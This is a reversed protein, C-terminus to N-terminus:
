AREPIMANPFLRAFTGRPSQDFAMRRDGAMARGRDEETGNRPMGEFTPDDRAGMRRLRGDADKSLRRRELRDRAWSRPGRSDEGLERLAQYVEEQQEEPAASIAGALITGFDADPDDLMSKFEETAEDRSFRRSPRAHTFRPMHKEKEL